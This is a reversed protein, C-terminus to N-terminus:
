SGAASLHSLTLGLLCACAVTLKQRVLDQGGDSEGSKGKLISVAPFPFGRRWVRGTRIYLLRAGCCNRASRLWVLLLHLMGTCFNAGIVLSKGVKSQSAWTVSGGQIQSRALSQSVLSSSSARLVVMHNSASVLCSMTLPLAPAPRPDWRMPPVGPITLTRVRAPGPRLCSM